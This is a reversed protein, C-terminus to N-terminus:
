PLPNADGRQVQREFAVAVLAHHEDPSRFRDGGARIEGALDHQAHHERLDHQNKERREGYPVGYAACERL